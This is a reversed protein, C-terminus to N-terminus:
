VGQGFLPPEVDVLGAVLFVALRQPGPTEAGREERQELDFRRAAAFHQQVRQSRFEITHDAAVVEAGIAFVHAQVLMHQHLETERMQNAVDLEQDFVGVRLVTGIAVTDQGGQALQELNDMAPVLITRFGVEAAREFILPEFDPHLGGVAGRLGAFSLVEGLPEVIM